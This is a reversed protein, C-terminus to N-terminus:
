SLFRPHLLGPFEPTIGWVWGSKWVAHRDKGDAVLGEDWRSVRFNALCLTDPTNDLCFEDQRSLPVWRGKLVFLMVLLNGAVEYSAL